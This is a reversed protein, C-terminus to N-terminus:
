AAKAKKAPVKAPAPAPESEDEAVVFEDVLKTFGILRLYVREVAVADSADMRLFASEAEDILDIVDQASPSVSPMTIVNAAAPTAVPAAPATVTEPAAPAAPATVTEPAAPAAPATVTEPAAPAAPATVTEPAAPAAPATVTEPATATVTPPVLGAEKAAKLEVAAKADDAAKTAAAKADAAVKAAHDAALCGNDALSILDDLPSASSKLVDAVGEPTQLHAPQKTCGGLASKIAMCLKFTAIKEFESETLHGPEVLSGLAAACYEANSISSDSAGSERLTQYMSGGKKLAKRVSYYLKGLEIYLRGRAADKEGFLKVRDAQSLADIEALSLLAIAVVPPKKSKTSV